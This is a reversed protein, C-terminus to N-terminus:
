AEWGVKVNKVTQGSLTTYSPLQFEKKEVIADYAFAQAGMSVALTLACALAKLRKM